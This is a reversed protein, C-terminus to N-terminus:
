FSSATLSLDAYKWAERLRKEVSAAAESQGQARLCQLLGFLSWGNNPRRKLDERYIAEAAPMRRAQVLAAGHLQRVPFYWFPPEMYPLNDELAVAAALGALRADENGRLGAVEAMLVTSAIKTVSAGPFDHLELTEIMKGQAIQELAAASREADASQRQRVFAMGRAYHWMATVFLWDKDPQPERLIDDWQGFRVLAFLPSAKIWQTMPMHEIDMKTIREAAKRASGTSDARRGEMSASYSHFHINHSLYMASYMSKIQHREVYAEDVAIARENCL